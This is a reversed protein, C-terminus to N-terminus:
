AYHFNAGSLPEKVNHNSSPSRPRRGPRLLDLMESREREKAISMIKPATRDQRTRDANLETM